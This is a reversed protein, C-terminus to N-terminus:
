GARRSREAGGALGRTRQEGAGVSWADPRDAQVAPVRVLLFPRDASPEAAQETREVLRDIRGAASEACCPGTGSDGDRRFEPPGRAHGASGGGIVACGSDGNEDTASDLAAADEGVPRAQRPVRKVLIAVQPRRGVDASDQFPDEAVMDANRLLGQRGGD